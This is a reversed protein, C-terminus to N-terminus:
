LTEKLWNFFETQWVMANQPKLVWHNEDPLFVFRSKIGQLQAAAFAEQGQGIPVRYDKGGHFILIPTNWKAVNNKPNFQAFTKQAAANNKDWYPGGADWNTFFVEETTGYMSELNFVGCHAILSKFRNEHIGALFYVSYGGYSAGIAGRRATDVYKEKSVEDIATLYDNMVQGGWDKSIAENWEVGHGPMGRRNPAVIVYGNAAMLQFNWRFSYFQTLASQPGGECYLITPYKKNPDFNPPLIVYVLMKKGDTTTIWKKEIKSKAIKSYAVDNVHTVKNWSKAKLDYSYVESATNFDTRTVLLKNGSFGVFGTVDFEGKTIQKVTVAIRSVGPFNVEFIQQTGDVAANFYVKKGDKSWVFSNVTGDWGATLNIDVGKHRVIIDNKDAEYGDNKMQLWSLDGNPSFTPHTDYGVNKETLNVTQKTDLNYEYLDTNTSTAYATGSKKKSVYIVSKGSPHWIYDEEGGFPAQPSYYPEDKLLDTKEKTELNTVFVHSFSGDSDKDWHRYDLGDYVYVTADKLEPYRDKGLVKNVKVDESSLSFKGDPSLNRDKLLGDTSELEKVRKGDISVQYSKYEIKNKEMNPTGVKYILYDGKETIGVPNVRGLQWLLEKTMVKDQATANLAVVSLTALLIRKM